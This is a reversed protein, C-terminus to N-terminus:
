LGQMQSMGAMNGGMGGGQGGLGTVIGSLGLLSDSTGQWATDINAMGSAMLAEKKEVENMFPVMENLNFAQDQYQAMQGLSQGYLGEAQRRQRSSEIGLGALQRNQNGAMNSAGALIDQASGAAGQMAALGTSTSANIQDEMQTQGPMRSQNSLGKYLALQQQQAEPIEYEPRIPNMAEAEKKQKMGVIGKRAAGVLAVGGGALALGAGIKAGAGAM